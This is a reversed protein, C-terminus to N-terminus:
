NYFITNNNKYTQFEDMTIETWTTAATKRYYKKAAAYGSSTKVFGTQVFSLAITHGTQVNTLTYTLTNGNKVLSETIDTGNDLVKIPIIDGSITITASDGHLVTQSAPTITASAYSSSAAVTYQKQSVVITHNVTPTTLTYTYNNGGASVLSSKVDTGNDKVDIAAYNTTSITVVGNQTTYVKQTAPTATANTYTSSATITVNPAEEVTITHASQVNTLTYIFTGGTTTYNITLDAGYFRIYSTGWYSQTQCGVRLRINNLESRTWTGVTLDFVSSDDNFTSSSGKASNGNYLQANGASTGWGTNNCGAKVSCEVSNIAADQPISSVDFGYMLYASTDADFEAYTTSSTNTLGNEENSIDGSGEIYTSPIFTNSLTTEGGEVLSSTVDIGNDKVKIEYLNEVDIEVEVNRGESVQRSSPSVTAGTYTSSANVQYKISSADEVVITHATQINSILYRYGGEVSYVVYCTAGNIAGGYYGLRCKLKLDNLQSASPLSTAEITQTSNSTGISKFNLEDSITNATTGLILQACMYESSNSTSEAHGNVECYVREITATTPIGTFSFDYTFVAISSSGNSYYNSTTKEADVGNGVIGQFYSAGNGNFGGSILTYEGLFTSSSANDQPEIYSVLSTVDIGNDEVIIDDKSSIDSISIEFNEGELISQTGTPIVTADESDNTVSVNYYTPVTYDVEIEAGYIYIYSTQNRSSRRCNIRIGFDSGAAVIEDWTRTPEFTHVTVTSSFSNESAGMSTSTGDYLYMVQSYGRNYNGKLKITFSNVIADAPVADFNFGRVYIYYNSTSNNTNTVTAYNTSDTNTYMNSADSVNLYSSNSLYYTSPTLRITAM